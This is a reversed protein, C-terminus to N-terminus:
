PDIQAPYVLSDSPINFVHELVYELAVVDDPPMEPKDTSSM